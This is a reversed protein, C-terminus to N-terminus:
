IDIFYYCFYVYWLNIKGKIFILRLNIILDRVIYIKEKIMEM